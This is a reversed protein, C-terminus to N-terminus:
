SFRNRKQKSAAAKRFINELANADEVSSGTMSKLNSQKNIFSDVIRDEITKSLYPFYAISNEGSRHCRGLLQETDLANQRVDAIITIRPKSSAKTGDPLQENAHLSIGEVVSSLVVDVKNKQFKLRNEERESVNRGSLETVKIKKKILEEKLKDITEIFQCSVFVQNGAEVQDIIFETLAPIKLISAKQRYRLMEVLAGKPDKKAPTLNLWNRFRTWVEEYIVQQNSELTIPLPILQQEPWGKLDSPSRRIFPAEKKMLAKGIRQADEKQKRKADRAQIKYLARKKPDSNDKNFGPVTVWSWGTKTKHMHFNMSDLFGGWLKPTIEKAAPAKSLLPAIIGSMIAFNLPSDGPTATSFIVFPTKGKVYKKDLKAIREAARTTQSTIHKMKHSEDFIVFDWDILPKGKSATQRNKTSRKKVVKATSPPDLLKNLQQYNIILPRLVTTSTPYSHITDRWQPIVSKPCVILLKAKNNYDYGEKKAISTIGTLGSLTNHTPIYSETVLYLHDPADVSLCYYEEEKDIKEINKVYRIKERKEFNVMRKELTKMKKSTKFIQINPYFLLENYQYKKDEKKNDIYKDVKWGFSAIIQYIQRFLNKNYLSFLVGSFPDKLSMIGKTDLVGKIFELRQEKSVNLYDSPIIKILEGTNKNRPLIKQLKELLGQFIYTLNKNNINKNMEIKEIPYKESINKIIEPDTSFISANNTSGNAIWVGFVYPDILLDQSVGEIMECNEISHNYEKDSSYLTEYIKQTNNISNNNNDLQQKYLEELVEQPHYITNNEEIKLSTINKLLLHINKKNKVIKLIENISVPLKEEQKDKLFNSLKKFDKHSFKINKNFTEDVNQNKTKTLWRHQSDTDITTEDNFTIRYFTNDNSIKKELVKTPKGNKGLVYDGIKIDGITTNGNPTPIITSAKLGKGIGTLDSLLFGRQKRYFSTYIKKAATIQHEKPKFINVPPEPTQVHTNAEDEIWRHYSFDLSRYPRLESPLLEGKYVYVKRDKYYTIDPHQFGWPIDLAYTAM